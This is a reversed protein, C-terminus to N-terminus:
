EVWFFQSWAAMYLIQLTFMLIAVIQRSEVHNTLKAAVVFVPFVILYYRV